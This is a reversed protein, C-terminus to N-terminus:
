DCFLDAMKIELAECIKYLSRITPNTLGNEIRSLRAKEFNCIAALDEQTMEKGTRFSRIMKGLQKLMDDESM